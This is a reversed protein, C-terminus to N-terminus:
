IMQDLHLKKMYEKGYKSFSTTYIRNASLLKTMWVPFAGASKVEMLVEGRQLLPTGYSGNELLLDDRRTNINRDFTIRLHSDDRGFFATRDYGIFATPHVDYLTLFYSIEKLVQDTLYDSPNPLTGQELFASAEGLTMVARRKGVIGTVKKKLELFVISEQSTPNGYSRLRLKDKYDPKSLSHRIIASDKTDFYINNIAYDQGNLCHEDPILYELLEPLIAKFQSESLLFKKEVRKFTKISM